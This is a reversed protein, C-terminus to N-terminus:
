VNIKDVSKFSVHLHDDHGDCKSVLGTAKIQPDSLIKPDNFYICKVLGSEALALIMKKTGEFDYVNSTSYCGVPGCHGDKAIPRLDVDLGHEHSTHQPHDGGHAYSIDGVCINYGSDAMCIGLQRLIEIVHTQGYQESTPSYNIIGECNRELAVFKGSHQAPNIVIPTVDVFGNEPDPGIGMNAYDCKMAGLPIAALGSVTVPEAMSFTDPSELIAEEAAPAEPAVTPEGGTWDLAKTGSLVQERVSM